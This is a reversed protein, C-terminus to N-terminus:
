LDQKIIIRAMVQNGIQDLSFTYKKPYCNELREVLNSLGVGHSWKENLKGSNIVELAISGAEYKRYLIELNIGGAKSLLGHRISNEVLPQTIFCPLVKKLLSDDTRITYNLREEYRIKEVVLYKRIIEVEEGISIMLRGNYKLTAQLFESLATVTDDAAEPNENILAKVSNLSNFLFHPNIQYRLMQLQANKALIQMEQSRNREEMLFFYNRVSLYGLSWGFVPGVLWFVSGALGYPLAFNRYYNSFSIARGPFVIIHSFGRLFFWVCGGILSFVFIIGLQKNFVPYTVFLKLYVYRLVTVILFGMIITDLWVLYDTLDEFRYINISLDIM